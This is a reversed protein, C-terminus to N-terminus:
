SDLAAPSPSGGTTPTGSALFSQHAMWKQVLGFIDAADLELADEGLGTTVGVITLMARFTASGPLGGQELAALVALADGVEVLDRGKLPRLPVSTTIRGEINLPYALDYNLAISM